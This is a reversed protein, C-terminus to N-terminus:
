DARQLASAVLHVVRLQEELSSETANEAHRIATTVLVGARAHPPLERYLYSAETPPIITDDAGHLVFVPIRVRDLNGVASADRLVAGHREIAGEMRQRLAASIEARALAEALAGDDTPLTAALATAEAHHQGFHLELARRAIAADEPPFLQDALAHGLVGPGYPHARARFLRGDADRVQDGLYYRAVRRLDHAAGITLMAAITGREDEAAARLAIAGSFSIAIVTIAPRRLECALTEAANAITRREAADLQFRRLPTLDPTLVAYGEHALAHAFGVMRPEDIGAPHVGHVLV